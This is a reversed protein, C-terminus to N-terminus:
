SGVSELTVWLLRPSPTVALPGFRGPGRSPLAAGTTADCIGLRWGPPVNEACLVAPLSGDVAGVRITYTVVGGKVPRVERALGCEPGGDALASVILPQGPGPPLAEVDFSPDFGESAGRAAGLLVSATVGSPPEARLRVAWEPEPVSRVGARVSSAAATPNPVTVTVGSVKCYMWYGSWPVLSSAEQYGAAETYGFVLGRVWANQVAQAFSVSGSGNDVALDAVNVNQTFPCGVLNWGPTLYLKHSMGAPIVDAEFQVQLPSTVRLWYGRGPVLPPMFPYVEYLEDQRAPDWYAMLLQSPDVGLAASDETAVPYGPVSMLHMGATGAAFYHSLTQRELISPLIVYFFYGTNVQRTTSVGDADTFTFRVKAPYSDVGGVRSGFAGQSVTINESSGGNFSVSVTGDDRGIAAGLISSGTAETEGRVMYPFILQRQVSGIAVTVTIRQAGGINYLSGVYYGQGADTGVGPISVEYGEQVYLSFAATYDFFELVAGGSRPTERGDETAVFTDIVLILRDHEPLSYIYTRDGVDLSTDLAYQRRFWEYFSQGEVSPLVSSAIRALVPVNGAATADANWRAYYADNFRAFFTPDEVWCKSWAAAAMGLRWTIMGDFGTGFIRDHGLEPTNLLEYLNTVYLSGYSPDYAPNYISVIADAAAVSFGQEWQEYYFMADDHFAHLLQRVIMVHNADANDTLAPIRIENATADYVGGTLDTITDDLVLTVTNSFAPKGYVQVCVPYIADVFASLEAQAAPSWGDYAFTLDGNGARALGRAVADRNPLVLEGDRTHILRRGLLLRSGAPRAGVSALFRHLSQAGAYSETSAGRVSVRDSASAPEEVLLADIPGSAVTAFPLNVANGFRFAAGATAMGGAGTGAGCGGVLVGWAVLLAGLAARGM